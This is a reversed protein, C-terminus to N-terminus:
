KDIASVIRERTLKILEDMINVVEDVDDVNIVEVFIKSTPHKSSKWFNINYKNSKTSLKANEFQKLVDTVRSSLDYDTTLENDFRVNIGGNNTIVFEYHCQAPFSEIRVQKYIKSRFSSTLLEPHSENWKAAIENLFKVKESTANGSIRCLEDAENSSVIETSVYLEREGDRYKSVEILKITFRTYASLFQTLRTLNENSEDIAIVLKIRGSRLNDEIFKPLNIESEIDEVVKGLKYKTARDLDHYSMETLSSIYDIIQAIVDRRSGPNRSLKTEVVVVDGTESIMLLDTKGTPINLENSESCVTYLRNDESLLEPSLGLIRQLEKEDAYAVSEIKERNNSVMM